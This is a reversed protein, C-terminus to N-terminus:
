SDKQSKKWEKKKVSAATKNGFLFSSTHKDAGTKESIRPPGQFLIVWLGWLGIIGTLISVGFPLAGVSNTNYSIFSSILCAGTLPGLLPHGLTDRRRTQKEVEDDSPIQNYLVLCIALSFLFFSFHLALYGELPTLVRESFETSFSVFLLFRPFFLLISAALSLLAASVWAWVTVSSNRSENHPAPELDTPQNHSEQGKRKEALNDLEIDTTM